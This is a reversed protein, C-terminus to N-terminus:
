VIQQHQEVRRFLLHIQMMAGWRNMDSYFDELYPNDKVPENFALYGLNEALKQTLTSKGAGIIGSIGIFM